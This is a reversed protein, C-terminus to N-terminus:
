GAHPPMAHAADGLLLCCGKSWPGGLPLKYIGYFQVTSTQEVIRRMLSGWEDSAGDLVRLLTSKFEDVEEKRRVEWGDRDDGSELQPVEKSFGWYIEEDSATCTMAMFLGGQTM